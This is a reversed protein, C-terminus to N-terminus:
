KSWGYRFIAYFRVFSYLTWRTFKGVKIAKMSELFIKDAEKRTVKKNLKEESGVFNSNKLVDSWKEKKLFADCLRDHLVASKTYRGFPPFISWFLRPVSAFDTIYGREINIIENENNERYYSFEEDLQYRDGDDLVIVKLPSRFTSM